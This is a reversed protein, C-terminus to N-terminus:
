KLVGLESLKDYIVLAATSTNCVYAGNWYDGDAAYTEDEIIRDIVEVIESKTMTM